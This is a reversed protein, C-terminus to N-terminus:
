ATDKALLENIRKAFDLPNNLKSGEAIVALEYLMRGHNVVRPDDPGKEYMQQLNVIAPHDPNLELIRKSEPVSEQRGLRKLLREMHAGMGDETAVLCAASDTLRGSLRVEQVEEIQGNLFDLLNKFKTEKDSEKEKDEKKDELEGRDVAKFEKDKYKVLGQVVWEDIPDTMFLVEQDRDRLAELYPSNELERRNEGFLYYIENQEDPMNEVYKDLAVYKGSETKTSEFLLLGALKEKNAFDSYVGEKLITGFNNFFNLYAESEKEKMEDLIGIVKKVLNRQIKELLANQQVIERSINLPLDACDVVGKVFRLYPPLLNECDDTIFVRNIYLQLKSKPQGSLFDFPKHAPIFLLAKFNITGEAAYHIVKAPDEFDRSVHKYFEKYEEESVDSNSRLWIPKRSNLVEEKVEKKDDEGSEIDMVVPHEIFDSFKTVIQRIRWQQLYEKDEERLHLIVDTGCSQKEAPEVSFKGQGDSVWKVADSANEGAKRSIVTVKDAVMFASYFGVGFQGILELQQKDEATKLRELLEKTGSKAITGLNKVIDDRNMGTGNDSVTLTSSKEDPILKIKKEPSEDRLNKDTLSDFRLVDIADSANSILERLFIDKNTYLSHIIIDMLQKLETKFAIKRPAPM